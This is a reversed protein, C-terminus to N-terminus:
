LTHLALVTSLFWSNKLLATNWYISQVLHSRTAWSKSRLPATPCKEMKITIMNAAM